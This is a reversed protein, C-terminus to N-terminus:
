KDLAIQIMDLLEKNRQEDLTNVSKSVKFEFPEKGNPRELALSYIQRFTLKKINEVGVKEVFWQPIEEFQEKTVRACIVQTQAFARNQITM